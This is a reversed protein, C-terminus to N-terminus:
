AARMLYRLEREFIKEFQKMVEGDLLDEMVERMRGTVIIQVEQIPLRTKGRRRFVGQHGNPMTAKFARDFQRKGARVGNTNQSVSGLQSAKLVGGSQKLAVVSEPRSKKARVLILGARIAGVKVNLSRATESAVRTQTWRATKNLARVAATQLQAETATLSQQWQDLSPSPSLTISLM